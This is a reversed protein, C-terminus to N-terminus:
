CPQCWCQHLLLRLWGALAQLLWLLCLACVCVGECPQCQHLRQRWQTTQCSNRRSSSVSVHWSYVFHFSSLFFVLFILNLFNFLLSTSFYALFSFSSLLLSLSFSFFFIFLSPLLCLSPSSFSISLLHSLLDRFLYQQWSMEVLLMLVLIAIISWKVLCAFLVPTIIIFCCWHQAAM